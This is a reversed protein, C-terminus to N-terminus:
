KSRDVKFPAPKGSQEERLESVHLTERREKKKRIGHGSPYKWKMMLNFNYVSVGARVSLRQLSRILGSVPLLVLRMHKLSHTEVPGVALFLSSVTLREKICRQHSSKSNNIVPLVWIRIFSHRSLNSQPWRGRHINSTIVVPLRERLPHTLTFSVALVSGVKCSSRYSKLESIHCCKWNAKPNSEMMLKRQTTVFRLFCSSCAVRLFLLILKSATPMNTKDSM